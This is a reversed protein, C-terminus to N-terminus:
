NIPLFALLINNTIIGWIILFYPMLMLIFAARGFGKLGLKLYFAKAMFALCILAGVSTADVILLGPFGGIQLAWKALFGAEYIQKSGSLELAVFTSTFDLVALVGIYFVLKLETYPWLAQSITLIHPELNRQREINTKLRNKANEFFIHM